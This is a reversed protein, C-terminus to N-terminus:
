QNPEGQVKGKKQNSYRFAPKWENKALLYYINSGRGQRTKTRMKSAVINLKKLKEMGRKIASLSVGLEDALHKLSPFAIGKDAHRWLASYVIHGQWGVQKAYGNLFDNPMSYFDSEWKKVVKFPLDLQEMDKILLGEFGHPTLSLNSSL